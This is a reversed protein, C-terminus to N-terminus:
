HPPSRQRDAVRVRTPRRSTWCGWPSTKARTMGETASCGSWCKACTTAPVPTRCTCASGACCAVRRRSLRRLDPRAHAPQSRACRRHSPPARPWGRVGSAPPLGLRPSGVGRLQPPLPPRGARCRPGRAAASRPRLWRRLRGRPAAVAHCLAQLRPPSRRPPSARAPLSSCACRHEFVEPRKLHLRMVLDVFAPEGALPLHGSCLLRKRENWLTYNMGNCLLGAASAVAVRDAGPDRGGTERHRRLVAAAEHCLRPVASTLIGLHSGEAVVVADAAEDPAASVMDVDIPQGCRAWAERFQDLADVGPGM